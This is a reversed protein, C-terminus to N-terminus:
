HNVLQRHLSYARNQEQCLLGQTIRNGRSASNRGMGPIRCIRDNTGLIAPLCDAEIAEAIQYLWTQVVELQVSELYLEEAERAKKATHTSREARCLEIRKNLRDGLKRLKAAKKLDPQRKYQKFDELQIINSSKPNSNTEPVISWIDLQQM